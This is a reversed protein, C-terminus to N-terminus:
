RCKKPRIASQQHGLSYFSPNRPYVSIGNDEHSIIESLGDVNSAVVPVGSAMGELAVMGFPEYVSPVVLVDAAKMLAMMEHDPLFGAFKVRQSLGLTAVDRELLERMWGDGVIILKVNYPLMSLAKILYDCGKQDTLRGVFLVLKDDDYIGYRARVWSRDVTGELAKADIGNPIVCLKDEPVLFREVVDNRTSRSCVIVLTAEYTSWWEISEVMRSEAGQSGGSRRFELSHITIILVAKLLHKLEVASPTTLWDHAHIIDFRYESTLQAVRKVFFHNMLMVWSHFSPAPTEIAVRHIHVEDKLEEFPTNPFEPTVVHVGIGRKVLARSLGEVHRSIGGVVRPPYEWTLMLVM